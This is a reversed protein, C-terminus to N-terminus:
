IRADALREDKAIHLQRDFERIAELGFFSVNMGLSGGAYTIVYITRKSFFYRIFSLLAFLWLVVMIGSEEMGAALILGALLFVVAILIYWVSSYYSFGTSTIDQLDVTCDEKGSGASKYNKGRYYLRRNTIAGIEQSLGGGSFINRVYGGKIVTQLQEDPSAFTVNITNMNVSKKREDKTEHYVGQFNASAQQVKQGAFDKMGEFGSNKELAEGCNPCVKTGEPLEQGCKGCFM